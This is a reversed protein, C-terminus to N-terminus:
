TAAHALAKRKLAVFEDKDIAGQDLLAKARSIEDVSYTGALERIYASAEARRRENAAQFRHAMGRGRTVVYVLAAIFPFLLLALIWLGKSVGGLDRDRFLDIVIQSMLLLYAIFLFASILVEVVIILDRMSPRM